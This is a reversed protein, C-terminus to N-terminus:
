PTTDKYPKLIEKFYLRRPPLSRAKVSYAIRVAGGARRDEQKDRSSRFRQGSQGNPLILAPATESNYLGM